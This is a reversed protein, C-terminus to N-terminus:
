RLLLNNYGGWRCAEVVDKFREICLINCFNNYGGWRCAEVVVRLIKIRNKKFNNYGGWRCAEVVRYYRFRHLLRTTTIGM